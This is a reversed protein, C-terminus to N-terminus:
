GDEAGVKVPVAPVVLDEDPPRRSLKSPWWIGAGLDLALAPVLLSRVVFTDLLIGFAVLFGIQAFVVLPLVALVAFTAALVVGASTIVGGTVALGRLVGSRHGTKEVEERIRTMLFINYDIGLAVLFVFGFLVLSSDLAEFGLMHEFVFASAGLAAFFSLVVTVILVLPAVLARLLLALVVFVVALVLPMVVGRDHAAANRTDLGTATAGGVLAEAGDIHSVEERLREVTREAAAGDPPDDLVVPIQVLGGSRSGAGPMVQSVGATGDVTETVEREVAANAVVLAPNSSGAPYHEALTEQGVVSEPTGRFTQETTLGIEADGLGFILAVLFVATCVWAVRPGRAVLGGVRSWLTGDERVAVGYRPVLPWFLPRGFIALLAPLLTTLALLACIIGVAGVIGLARNSNLDAALLCLLCAAVTVASAAIAPGAHRVAVAIAEHRDARRRLEERYRSILLLAYDTGAGFVLVPLISASQVDVTLGSYRALLYVVAGALQAALGVSILPLLWLSPSRYTILLLLTVVTITAFLLTTDVGELAQDAATGAPGTVEVALGDPAGEGVIRRVEEVKEAFAGTDEGPRLPVSLTLAEGDRSPVPGGVKRGGTVLGSLEERDQGAEEQDVATIGGDRAYVVVAPLDRGGEFRGRLEYVKTSEAGWPLFASADGEQVDALRGALPVAAVALAAWVAVVLWKGVRGGPVGAIRGWFTAPLCEGGGGERKRGRGLGDM